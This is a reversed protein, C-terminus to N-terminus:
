SAGTAGDVRERLRTLRDGMEARWAPAKRRVKALSEAACAGLSLGHRDCLEALALLVDGVEGALDAKTDKGYCEADLVCRVVEGCEEALALAAGMRPHELGALAAAVDRQLDDLTM